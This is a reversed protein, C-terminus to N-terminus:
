PLGTVDASIIPTAVVFGAARFEKLGPGLHIGIARGTKKHIVPGGSFGSSGFMDILLIKRTEINLETSAIIGSRAIPIDATHGLIGPHGILVVDDGISVDDVSNLLPFVYPSLVQCLSPAADLIALDTEPHEYRLAAGTTFGKVRNAPFRSRVGIRAKDAKTFLHKGTAILCARRSEVVFGSGLWKEIKFKEPGPVTQGVHVIGDLMRNLDVNAITQAFGSTGTLLLGLATAITSFGGIGNM